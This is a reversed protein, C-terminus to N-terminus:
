FIVTDTSKSFIHFDIAVTFQRTLIDEETNMCTQFLKLTLLHLCFVM